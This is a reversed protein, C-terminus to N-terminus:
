KYYYKIREPLGFLRKYTYKNAIIRNVFDKLNTNNIGSLFKDILSQDINDDSM